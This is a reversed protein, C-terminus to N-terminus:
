NIQTHALRKEEYLLKAAGYQETLRIRPDFGLGFNKM